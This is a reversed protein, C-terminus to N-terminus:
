AECDGGWELGTQDDGEGEGAGRLRVRVLDRREVSGGGDHRLIDVGCFVQRTMARENVKVKVALREMLLMVELRYRSLLRPMQIKAVTNPEMTAKEGRVGTIMWAMPALFTRIVANVMKVM